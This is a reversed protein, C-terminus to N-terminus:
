HPGGCEWLDKGWVSCMGWRGWVVFGCRAMDQRCFWMGAGCVWRYEAEAQAASEEQFAVPNQAVLGRRQKDMRERLEASRGFVGTFTAGTCSLFMCMCTIPLMHFDLHCMRSPELPICIHCRVCQCPRCRHLDHRHSCLLLQLAKVSCSCRLVGGEDVPELTLTVLEDNNVFGTALPDQGPPQVPQQAGETSTNPQSNPQSAAPSAAPDSSGTAAPPTTIDPAPQTATPQPTTPAPIQFPGKAGAARRALVSSLLGSMAGAAASSSDVVLSPPQQPAPSADQPQGAESAAPVSDAATSSIAPTTSPRHQQTDWHAHLHQNHRRGSSVRRRPVQIVRPAASKPHGGQPRKISEFAQMRRRAAEVLSFEDSHQMEKIFAMVGFQAGRVDGDLQDVAANLKGWRRSKASKLLAGMVNQSGGPVQQSSSRNTGTAAADHPAGSASVHQQHGAPRDDQRSGPRSDLDKGEKLRELMTEARQIGQMATTRLAAGKLVAKKDNESKSRSIRAQEENAAALLEHLRRGPLANSASRMSGSGSMSSNFSGPWGPSGQRGGLQSRPGSAGRGSAAGGAGVMVNHNVAADEIAAAWPDSALVRRATASSAGPDALNLSSGQRSRSSNFDSQNTHGFGAMVGALGSDGTGDAATTSPRAPQPPLSLM